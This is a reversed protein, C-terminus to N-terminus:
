VRSKLYLKLMAKTKPSSKVRNVGIGNDLLINNRRKSLEYRYIRFNSRSMLVIKDNITISTLESSKPARQLEKEVREVTIIKGRGLCIM